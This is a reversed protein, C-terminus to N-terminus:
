IGRPLFFGNSYASIRHGPSSSGSNAYYQIKKTTPDIFIRKNAAVHEDDVSGSGGETVGITHGSSTDGYTRISWGCADTEAANTKLRLTLEIEQAFAPNRDITMDTWSNIIAVTDSQEQLDEGYQVFDKGDHYFNSLETGFYVSFICRDLDDYWAHSADSWVPVDPSVRIGAETVTRELIESEDLYVYLWQNSGAIGSINLPTDWSVTTGKAGLDYTGPGINISDAGAYEFKSRVFQGKVRLSALDVSSWETGSGDANVKLFQGDNGDTDPIMPGEIDSPFSNKLVKKILKLHDNGESVPDTAPPNLPQLDKIWNGNELSM